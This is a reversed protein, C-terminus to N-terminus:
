ISTIPISTTMQWSEGKLTQIMGWFAEANVADIWWMGSFVHLPPLSYGWGARGIWGGERSVRMLINWITEEDM